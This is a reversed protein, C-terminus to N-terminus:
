NTVAHRRQYGVLLGISLILAGSVYRAKRALEGFDTWRKSAHRVRVAGVVGSLALTLALGASFCMVLGLGLTFQKLQLLIVLM